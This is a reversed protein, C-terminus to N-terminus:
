VKDFCPNLSEDLCRNKNNNKELNTSTLEHLLDNDVKHSQKFVITNNQSLKNIEIECLKGTFGM